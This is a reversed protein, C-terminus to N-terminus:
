RISLPLSIFVNNLGEREARNLLEDAATAFVGDGTEIALRKFIFYNGWAAGSVGRDQRFSFLTEAEDGPQRMWLSFRLNRAILELFDRRGYHEALYLLGWNSVMNYNPSREEYYCGDGDIDVGDDLYSEIVQRNRADPFISDVVALPGACAAWRHNSTYPFLRRVAEAGRKIYDELGSLIQDRGPLDSRQFRRYTECVGPLTFGVENGGGVGSAELGITGDERQRHKLFQLHMQLRPLLWPNGHYAPFDPYLYAAFIDQVEYITGGLTPM